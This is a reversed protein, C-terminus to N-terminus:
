EKNERHNTRGREVAQANWRLNCRLQLSSVLAHQDLVQQEDDRDPHDRQEDTQGDHLQQLRRRPPSAIRQGFRPLAKADRLELRLGCAQMALCVADVLVDVLVSEGVLACGGERAVLRRRDLLIVLLPRGLLRRVFLSLGL